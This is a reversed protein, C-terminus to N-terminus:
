RQDNSAGEQMCIDLALQPDFPQIAGKRTFLIGGLGEEYDVVCLTEEYGRSEWYEKAAQLTYKNDSVVGIDDGHYRTKHM